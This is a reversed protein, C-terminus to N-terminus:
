WPIASTFLTEPPLPDSIASVARQRIEDDPLGMARLLGAYNGVANRFRPHEHGTRRGFEAFIALARRMLPEAEALRNTEQLIGTLNNLDRAVDPHGNGYAAEDIALARRILPEAEALRQSDHLLRALNNLHIAVRPHDNGYVAEDIALARRMLLEAEALRNTAQLLSALNNLDRAVDTHDSGHAAEDIELARRMLPEAEALRNTAQLLTALNNLRIAVEPHDNGYAAEDIALARRMLPEADELRNADQLSQALNNLLRAVEPHDPPFEHEAIERAREAHFIARDLLAVTKFFHRLLNHTEIRTTFHTDPHSEEWELAETLHQEAADWHFAGMELLAARKLLVPLSPSDPKTARLRDIERLTEGLDGTAPPLEPLDLPLEGRASLTALSRADQRPEPRVVTDRISWLDPAHLRAHAALKESGVMILPLRLRHRIVDRAQNAQSLFRPWLRDEFRVPDAPDHHVDAAWLGPDPTLWLVGTGEPIPLNVLPPILIEGKEAPRLPYPLLSKGEAALHKELARRCVEAGAHDPVILPVFAFGEAYDLLRLLSRWEPCEGLAYRGALAAILNEDM